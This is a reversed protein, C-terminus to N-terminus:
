RSRSSASQITETAVSTKHIQKQMKMLQYGSNYFCDPPPENSGGKKKDATVQENPTRNRQNM